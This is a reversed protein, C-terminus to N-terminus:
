QICMHKYRLQADCLANRYRFNILICPTTILIQIWHTVFKNRFNKLIEKM